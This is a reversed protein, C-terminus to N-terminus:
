QGAAASSRTLPPLFASFVGVETWLTDRRIEVKITVSM